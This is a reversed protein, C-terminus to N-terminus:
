EEFNLTFQIMRTNMRDLTNSYPNTADSIHSNGFYNGIKIEPSVVTFPLYISFGAGFEYGLQNQRIQPPPYLELQRAKKYEESNASLNIDYKPGAFMYVRFNNIRDSSLKLHLPVSVMTAPLRIIEPNNQIAPKDAIYAADYYYSLSKSGGIVLKPAIRTELNNHIRATALLGFELGHSGKPEIRTFAPQNLFDKSRTTQLVANNYGVSLGFYYPDRDHNLRYQNFQANVNISFIAACFFLIFIRLAKM